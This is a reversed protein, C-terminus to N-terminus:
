GEKSEKTMENRNKEWNILWSPKCLQRGVYLEFDWRKWTEWEDDEYLASKNDGMLQEEKEILLLWDSLWKEGYKKLVDIPIDIGAYWELVEKKIGHDDEAAGDDEASHVPMAWGYYEECYKVLLEHNFCDFPMRKGSCCASGSGYYDEWGYANDVEALMRVSSMNVAERDRYVAASYPSSIATAYYINRDDLDVVILEDSWTAVEEAIKQNESDTEDVGYLRYLEEVSQIGDANSALWMSFLILPKSYWNKCGICDVIKGGFATAVMYRDSM